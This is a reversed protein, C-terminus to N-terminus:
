DNRFVVPNSWAHRGREDTIRIRGYGRMDRLPFRAGHLLSGEPHGEEIQLGRLRSRAASPPRNGTSAREGSCQRSVLTVSAVPSCEILLSGRELSIRYIEPGTSAYFHGQRLAEVIADRGLDPAKVVVWGGLADHGPWHTDDVAVGFVSRRRCLLSDWHMEANGRGVSWESSTNYIELLLPDPLPSFDADTLGQYYPHAVIAIGGADQASVIGEAASMTRYWEVPRRPGVVAIHYVEGFETKGIALEIGDLVLFDPTSLKTCDSQVDHDTIALFDYGALRYYTTLKAPPM